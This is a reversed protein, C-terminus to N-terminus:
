LRLVENALLNRYYFSYIIAPAFEALRATWAADIREPAYVPISYKGALEACSRWWVNEHPDDRHTIVASIPAGLELLTEICAAGMESYAFILCPTEEVKRDTM